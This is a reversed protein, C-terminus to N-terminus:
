YTLLSSVVEENRSCRWCVDKCHPAQSHLPKSDHTIITISQHLQSCWCAWPERGQWIASRLCRDVQDAARRIKGPELTGLYLSSFFVVVESFLWKSGSEGTAMFICEQTVASSYWSSEGAWWAERIFARDQGICNEEGRTLAACTPGSRQPLQLVQLHWTLINQSEWYSRFSLGFLTLQIYTNM